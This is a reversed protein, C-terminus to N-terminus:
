ISFSYDHNIIKFAFLFTILKLIQHLKENSDTIWM